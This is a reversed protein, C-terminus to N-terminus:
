KIYISSVFVTGCAASVDGRLPRCLPCSRNFAAGIDTTFGHYANIFYGPCGAAAGPDDLGSM